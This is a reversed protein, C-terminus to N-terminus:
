PSLAVVVLGNTMSMSDDQDRDDPVVRLHENRVDRLV